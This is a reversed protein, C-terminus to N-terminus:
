ANERYREDHHYGIINCLHLLFFHEVLTVIWYLPLSVAPRYHIEKFLCNRQKRKISDLFRKLRWGPDSSRLAM